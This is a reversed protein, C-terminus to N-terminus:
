HRTRYDMVDVAATSVVVMADVATKDFDSKQHSKTIEGVGDITKKGFAVLDEDRIVKSAVYAGGIVAGALAIGGLIGKVFGM